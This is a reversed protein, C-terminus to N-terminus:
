KVAKYTIMAQYFREGGLFLDGFPEWDAKIRENVQRELDAANSSTVIYYARIKKEM